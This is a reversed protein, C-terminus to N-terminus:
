RVGHRSFSRPPEPIGGTRLREVADAMIKKLSLMGEPMGGGNRESSM